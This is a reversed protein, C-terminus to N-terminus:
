YHKLVFNTASIVVLVQQKKYKGNSLNTLDGMELSRNELLPIPTHTSVAACVFGIESM